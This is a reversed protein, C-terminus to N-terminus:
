KLILEASFYCRDFITLSNPTASSLLDKAYSIEGKSGPGFAIDHILRNRLSTLACLRVIPYETHRDKRYYVYQYHKVLNPNDHTRL